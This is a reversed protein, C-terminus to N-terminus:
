LAITSESGTAGIPGPLFPMPGAPGPLEPALSSNTRRERLYQRVRAMVTRDAVPPGAAGPGPAHHRAEEHPEAPHEPEPGLREAAQGRGELIWRCRELVKVIHARVTDELSSTSRRRETPDRGSGMPGLAQQRWPGVSARPLRM